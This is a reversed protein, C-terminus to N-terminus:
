VKRWSKRDLSICTGDAEEKLIILKKANTLDNEFLFRDLMELSNFTLDIQQKVLILKYM